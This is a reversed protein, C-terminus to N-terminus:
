SVHSSEPKNVSSDSRAALHAYFENVIRRPAFDREGAHWGREALNQRWPGDLALRQLLATLEPLNKTGACLTAESNRRAWQFGTAYSPGTVIVPMGLALYEPLKSPFHYSYLAEMSGAPDPYPLWVADCDKQIGAWAEAAPVFGRLDCCDTAAALPAAAGGPPRGYVILRARAARIAPLVQVLGEGYGYNLNGAFGITLTGPQRLTGSIEFPRPRLDESRNPYLVSGAVGYHSACLREMEPSICLRRVATRYIKGDRRRAAARAWPLVPEFEDNVDHVAIVLLLGRHQAFRHATDYYQAHQMVCFVVEPAFGELLRDLRALSAPPVLGWARLSRKLRFFRSSEFRHWPVLLKQYSVGPLPDGVTPVYRALVRIREPPYDRFLRHLLLGGASGTQPGEDSLILVRPLTSTM